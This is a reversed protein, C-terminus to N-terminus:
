PVRNAGPFLAQEGVRCVQALRMHEPLKDFGAIWFVDIKFHLALTPARAPLRALKDGALAHLM